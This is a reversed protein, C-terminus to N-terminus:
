VEAQEVDVCASMCTRACHALGHGMGRHATTYQWVNFDPENANGIVTMQPLVPRICIHIASAKLARLSEAFLPSTVPSYGDCAAVCCNM